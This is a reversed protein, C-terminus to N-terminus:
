AGEVGLYTLWESPHSNISTEADELTGFVLGGYNHTGHRLIVKLERSEYDYYIQYYCKNRDITFGKTDCLIVQRAKRRALEKEADRRSVFANGIEAARRIEDLEARNMCIYPEVSSSGIFYADDDLKLDDVSPKKAVQAKIFGNCLLNTIFLTMDPSLTSEYTIGSGKTRYSGDYDVYDRLVIYDVM